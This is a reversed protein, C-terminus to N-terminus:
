AHTGRENFIITGIWARVLLATTVNTLGRRAAAEEPAPGKLYYRRKAALYREPNEARWRLAYERKCKPCHRTSRHRAGKMEPHKVCVKGYYIKAKADRSM